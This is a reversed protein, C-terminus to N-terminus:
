CGCLFRRRTFLRAIGKAESGEVAFDGINVKGDFARERRPQATAQDAGTRCLELDPLLIILMPEAAEGHQV